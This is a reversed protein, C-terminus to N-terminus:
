IQTMFLEVTHRGELQAPICDAIIGDLKVMSNTGWGHTIVDLTAKRYRFNEIKLGSLPEPVAPRFHLGREDYELGMVGLYFYSLFGAAHWLQGPWRWARGTKYDIVEYFTKNMVCNRVQQSILQMLLALNGERGAAAAIGATWSVWAANCFHNSEKRYPFVNVGFENMAVETLKSLIKKRQTGDTIGYKPWVAMEQGSSEWYDCFYSESGVPGSTYFGATEKWYQMRINSLLLDGMDAWKDVLDQEEGLHRGLRAMARFAEMFYIETALSFGGCEPEPFADNSTSQEAKILGRSSDFREELRVIRDKLNCWTDKVLTLDGTALYYDCIGVIPMGIGDVGNDFGNMTTYLLSRRAGEPDLLNGTRIAVHATDRVWVGFGEGPGQFQGASWLGKEGPRAFEDGSCRYLIDLALRYAADFTNHGSFIDPFKCIPYGPHWVTSRDVVRTMDGWQTKRWVFEETVRTPSIITNRDPVFAPPEGYVADEIRGGYITYSESKYIVPDDKSMGSILCADSADPWIGRLGFIDISSVRANGKICDVSVEKTRNHGPIAVAMAVRGNCAFIEVTTKDLFIHLKINGDNCPLPATIDACGITKEVMNLSVSIGCLGIELMEAEKLDLDISCEFLDSSIDNRTGEAPLIRIDPWNGPAIRFDLCQSFSQKGDNVEIDTWNRAWVRLNQLQQVPLACLKIGEQATMLKLEVPVLLQQGFPMEPCYAGDDLGVQFCRNELNESYILNSVFNGFWLSDGNSEKIYKGSDFHGTSYAGKKSFCVWKQEDPNNDVMLKVYQPDEIKTKKLDEKSIFGYNKESEKWHILDKSVACGTYKGLEENGFPNHGYLLQWEGEKHRLEIPAGMWGRKVTFHLQPRYKEHYLEEREAIQGSQIIVGAMKTKNDSCEIRLSEGQYEKMDVFAWFDNEEAALRVQFEKMVIGGITLRVLCLPADNDVAINLYRHEIKMEKLLYM